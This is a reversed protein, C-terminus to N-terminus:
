PNDLIQGLQGQEHRLPATFFIGGTAGPDLGLIVARACNQRPL